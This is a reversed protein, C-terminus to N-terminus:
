DPSTTERKFFWELNEKHKSLDALDKEQKGIKDNFEDLLNKQEEGTTKM